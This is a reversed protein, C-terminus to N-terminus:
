IVHEWTRRHVVGYLTSRSVDIERAIDTVSEGEAHRRRVTRVLDETLIVSSRRGRVACQILNISQSGESLHNPNCCPPTDCSHLVLEEPVRGIRTALAFRHARVHIQRTHGISIQFKGYGDKDSGATWLLCGTNPDPCCKTWFRPAQLEVYQFWDSGKLFGM